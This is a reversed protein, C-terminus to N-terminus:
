QAGRSEPVGRVMAVELLKSSIELGVAQAASLNIELRLDSADTVFGIMGWADAFGDIDSVTLVPEARTADIIEKLNARESRSIFVVHCAHLESAKAQQLKIARKQWTKNQLFSLEAGFPDVGMICIRLEADSAAPEPWTIFKIFNYLYAAKLSYERATDAAHANAYAFALAM